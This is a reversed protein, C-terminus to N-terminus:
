LKENIECVAEEEDAGGSSGPNSLSEAARGTNNKSVSRNKPKEGLLPSV